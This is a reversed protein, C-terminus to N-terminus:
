FKFWAGARIQNGEFSTWKEYDAVVGWKKGIRFAAGVGFIGIAEGNEKAKGGIATALGSLAFPTVRGNFLPLQLQAQFSPMYISNELYDLRLGSLVYPNIEYLGAVWGGYQNPVKKPSGDVTGGSAITGGAAVIWNSGASLHDLITKWASTDLEGTQAKGTFALGVALLFTLLYKM